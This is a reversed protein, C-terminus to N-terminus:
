EGMIDMNVLNWNVVGSVRAIIVGKEDVVYSTPTGRIFFMNALEEKKDHYHKFEVPYKKVYQEITKANEGIFISVVNIKEKNKIYFENLIPREETCYQCWTTVFSYITKKGELDKSTIKEKGDTSVLTIKPFLDNKQLGVKRIEEKSFIMLTLVLFLIITLIKKM